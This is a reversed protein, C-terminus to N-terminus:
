MSFLFQYQCKWNDMRIDEGVSSVGDLKYRIGTLSVRMEKGGVSASALSSPPRSIPRAGTVSNWDTLPM